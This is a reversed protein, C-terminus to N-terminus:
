STSQRPDKYCKLLRLDLIRYLRGTKNLREIAGEHVLHSIERSVTEHKLDLMSGMDNRSLLVTFDPNTFRRMKLVLNCVRQRASGFNLDVLWDDAERLARQMQHLIPMRVGSSSKALQQIVKLSIRCVSVETLAIATSGYSALDIAELGIVDGPGLVRVIRTRGCVATRVIKVMGRRLKLVGNVADGETYLPVDTRFNLDEVHVALKELELEDCNPFLSRSRVDCVICKSTDHSVLVAESQVM